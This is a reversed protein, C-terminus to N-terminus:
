ADEEKPHTLDTQAHMCKCLVNELNGGTLEQVLSFPSFTKIAKRGVSLYFTLYTKQQTPNLGSLKTIELM